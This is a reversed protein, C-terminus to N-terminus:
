SRRDLWAALDAFVEASDLDNFPEHYRDQYLKLAHDSTARASFEAAGQPDIIRDQSGVILLFPVKIEGARDLAEQCAALYETGLRFSIRDHVLRDHRYEHVVVSDRSVLSPDVGNSVTLAPALRSGVRAM